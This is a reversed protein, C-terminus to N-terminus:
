AVISFDAAALSPLNLIRAFSVAAGAGQGDADWSLVGNLTNYLLVGSDFGASSPHTGTVLQVADGAVLGGGFMSGDIEIRDFGTEFDRIHDRGGAGAPLTFAFTDAGAGGVLVDKGEEGVLRDDGDGGELLDDGGRGRLIDNGGNGTLRNASTEGVIFDAGSGGIVNEVNVFTDGSAAKGSTGSGDLFVDVGPSPAFNVRDVGNGGDYHDSGTSGRMLDNGDGGLMQDDGASGDLTDDGDGGSIQDNGEGGHLKDAGLDGDLTDDGGGANLFDNGSTGYLGDNTSTARIQGRSWSPLTLGPKLGTPRHTTPNDAYIGFQQEFGGKSPQDFANFVFLPTTRRANNNFQGNLWAKIQNYVKIENALTYFSSYGTEGVFPALKSGLKTYLEKYYDIVPQFEPSAFQGHENSPTYDNFLVTPAGGNWSSSWHQYIHQTAGVAIPAGADTRTYAAITTSVPISGLGAKKLSASLNDFASRFWGIYTNVDPPHNDAQDVENGLLIMQLHDKVAQKSGFSTILMQVWKDTYASSTMSGPGSWPSGYGGQALASTYTGMVLQLNKSQAVYKIVQLQDPDIIPNAGGPNAVDHFTKILGFNKTIADLDATISRGTRGNEWTEYNIGLNYNFPTKVPVLPDAAM